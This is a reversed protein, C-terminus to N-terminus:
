LSKYHFSKANKIGKKPRNRQVFIYVAKIFSAWIEFKITEYFTPFSPIKLLVRLTLQKYYNAIRLDMCFPSKM